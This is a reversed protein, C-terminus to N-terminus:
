TKRNNMICNIDRKKQLMKVDIYKRILKKIIGKKLPCIQENFHVFYVFTLPLLTIIVDIPKVPKNM